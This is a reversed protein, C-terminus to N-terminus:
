IRWDTGKLLEQYFESTYATEPAARVRADLYEADKGVLIRWKENKVGDLIITAAQAATTPANERFSVEQM